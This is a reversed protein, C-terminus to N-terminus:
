TPKLSHALLNRETTLDLILEEITDIKRFIDLANWSESFYEESYSELSRRLTSTTTLKGSDYWHITTM